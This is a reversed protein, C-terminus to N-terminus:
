TRVLMSCYNLIMSKWAFIQFYSLLCKKFFFNGLEPSEARLRLRVWVLQVAVFGELKTAWLLDIKILLIQPSKLAGERKIINGRWKVQDPLPVSRIRPQPLFFPNKPICFKLKAWLSDIKGLLIQELINSDGSGVASISDIIWILLSVFAGKQWHFHQQFPDWQSLKWRERLDGLQHLQTYNTRPVQNKIFM